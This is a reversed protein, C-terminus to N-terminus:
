GGEGGATTPTSLARDIVVLAEDHILERSEVASRLDRLAGEMAALRKIEDGAYEVRERENAEDDTGDDLAYAPLHERVDERLLELAAEAEERAAKERALASEASLARAEAERVSEVIALEIYDIDDDPLNCDRAIREGWQRPTYSV